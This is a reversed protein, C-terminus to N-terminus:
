PSRGTWATSSRRSRTSPRTDRRPWPPSPASAPPPSASRHTEARLPEGGRTPCLDGAGREGLLWLRWLDGRRGRRRVVRGHVRDLRQRGHRRVLGGRTPRGPGAAQLDEPLRRPPPRLLPGPRRRGPRLLLLGEHRVGTGAVPGVQTAARGPVEVPDPVLASPPGPLLEARRRDRRLGGRPDNRPGPRSGKPGHPPVDRRGDVGLSGLGAVGLGPAHGAAPVGPRRHRGDGPPDGRRGEPPGELGPAADLLARVATPAHLRRTGPPSPQGCRGRGPRRAPNPIFLSSWRM